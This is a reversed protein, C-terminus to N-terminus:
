IFIILMVQSSELSRLLTFVIIDTAYPSSKSAVLNLVQEAQSRVSNRSDRLCLSVGQLCESIVFGELLTPMEQYLRSIAQLAAVRTNDRRLASVIRAGGGDITLAGLGTNELSRLLQSAASARGDETVATLIQLLVVSDNSQRM